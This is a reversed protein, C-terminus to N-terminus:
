SEGEDDFDDAGWDEEDDAPEPVANEPAQQSQQFPAEAPAGTTGASAFEELLDYRDIIGKAHALAPKDPGDMYVGLFRPAQGGSLSVKGGNGDVDLGMYEMANRFLNLFGIEYDAHNTADMKTKQRRLWGCVAEHQWITRGHAHVNTAPVVIEPQDSAFGPTNPPVAVYAKGIDRLPIRVTVPTPKLGRAGHKGRVRRLKQLEKSQFFLNKWRIGERTANLKLELTTAVDWRSTEYPTLPRPRHTPSTAGRVWREEPTEWDLDEQKRRAYVEILYQHFLEMFADLDVKAESQPRRDGKEAISAGMSGHLWHVFDREITGFHREVYPKSNPIGPVSLEFGVGIRALNRQLQLSVFEKANDYRIKVPKGFGLLDGQINPWRERVYTKARIAHDICMVAPVLGGPEFTIAFGLPYGSHVDLALCIWFRDLGGKALEVGLTTKGLEGTTPHLDFKHHDLEVLDLIRAPRVLKGVAGYELDAAAVGKERALRIWADYRCYENQVTSLSPHPYSTGHIANHTDIAANVRISIKTPGFKHSIDVMERIKQSIIEYVKPPISRQRPTISNGHLLGAEQLNLGVEKAIWRLVSRPSVKRPLTVREGPAAADNDNAVAEIIAKANDANRAYSGHRTLLEHYKAVYLWKASARSRPAAPFANFAVKVRQAHEAAHESNSFKPSSTGPRFYRKVDMMGLLEGTGLAVQRNEDGNWFLHPGHPVKMLFKHAVGDILVVDNENLDDAMFEDLTARSPHHGADSAEVASM